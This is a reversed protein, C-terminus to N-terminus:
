LIIERHGRFAPKCWLKLHKPLLPKTWYYGKTKGTFCFVKQNMNPPLNKNQQNTKRPTFFSQHLSTDTFCHYGTRVFFLLFCFFLRIIWETGNYNCLYIKFFRHRSLSEISFAHLRTYTIHSLVSFGATNCIFIFGNETDATLSLKERVHHRWTDLVSVLSSSCVRVVLPWLKVVPNKGLKDWNEFSFFMKKM